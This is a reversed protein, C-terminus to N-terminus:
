FLGLFKKRKLQSVDQGQHTLSTLGGLNSFLPAMEDLLQEAFRPAVRYQAIAVFAGYQRFADRVQESTPMNEPTEEEWPWKEPFFFYYVIYATATGMGVGRAEYQWLPEGVLTAAEAALALAAVALLQQMFAQGDKITKIFKLYGEAHVQTDIVQKYQSVGQSFLSEDELVVGAVIALTVQWLQELPPAEAQLLSPVHQQYRALWADAFAALAEHDRVMEFVQSATVIHWIAELLTESPEYGLGAELARVARIGAEDDGEVRYLLGDNLAQGYVDLEPKTITRTGDKGVQSSDPAERLPAGSAAKLWAQAAQLIEDNAPDAQALSVSKQDFFLGYHM